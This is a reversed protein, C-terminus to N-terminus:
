CTLHFAGMICRTGQLTNFVECATSTRAAVLRIGKSRLYDETEPLIQMMGFKGKGVVLVAPNTEQLASEIDNIALSHGEKRWWNERVKQNCVLLDRTYVLGDIIIQGFTYDDIRM